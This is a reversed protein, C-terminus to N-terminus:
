KTLDDRDYASQYRRIQSEWSVKSKHLDLMPNDLLLKNFGCLTYLSIIGNHKAFIAGTARVGWVKSIPVSSNTSPSLGTGFQFSAQLFQKKEPNPKPAPLSTNQTLGLTFDDGKGPGFDWINTKPIQRQKPNYKMWELSTEGQRAQAAFLFGPEAYCRKSQSRAVDYSTEPRNAALKSNENYELFHTYSRVGKLKGLTWKKKSSEQGFGVREDDSFNYFGDNTFYSSQAFNENVVNDCRAHIAAAEDNTKEGFFDCVNAVAMVRPAVIRLDMDNSPAQLTADFLRKWKGNETAPNILIALNAPYLQDADLRQGTLKPDFGHAGSLLLNGGLSHGLILALRDPFVSKLSDIDLDTLANVVSQGIIDSKRKRSPFNPVNIIDDLTMGRIELDEEGVNAQGPYPLTINGPWAVYVGVIATRCHTMAVRCREANNAAANSLIIRHQRVNSDSIRGDHRWGHVFTILYINPKNDNVRFDVPLNVQDLASKLAILHSKLRIGLRALMPKGQRDVEMFAISYCNARKVSDESWCDKAPITAPRDPTQGDNVVFQISCEPPSASRGSNENGKADVFRDPRLIAGVGIGAANDCSTARRQVGQPLVAEVWQFVRINILLLSFITLGFLMFLVAFYWKRWLRFAFYFALTAVLGSLTLLTFYAFV